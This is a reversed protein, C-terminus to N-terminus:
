TGQGGNPQSSGAGALLRPRRQGVPKGLVEQLLIATQRGQKSRLLKVLQDAAAPIRRHILVKATTSAIEISSQVTSGSPPKPERTLAEEVVVEVTPLVREKTAQPRATARRPTNTSTATRGTPAPSVPSRPRPIELRTAPPKTRIPGAPEGTPIGQARQRAAAEKRRQNIKELFEDVDTRKPRPARESRSSAAETRRKEEESGLIVRRLVVVGELIAFILLVMYEWRM